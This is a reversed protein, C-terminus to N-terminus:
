ESEKANNGEEYYVRKLERLSDSVEELLEREVAAKGIKRLDEEDYRGSRSISIDINDFDYQLYDAIDVLASEIMTDDGMAAILRDVATVCGNDAGASIYMSHLQEVAETSLGTYKCVSSVTPKPSKINTLGLLYDTSVGFYGALTVLNKVSMGAFAEKRQSDVVNDVTKEPEGAREYNKLSQVNIGTEKSLTLHSVKKDNRLDKLRKSGIKCNYEEPFM